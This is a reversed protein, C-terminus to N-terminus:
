LVSSDRRTGNEHILKIGPCFLPTLPLVPPVATNNLGGAVQSCGGSGHAGWEGITPGADHEQYCLLFLRERHGHLMNGPNKEEPSTGRGQQSRTRGLPTLASTTAAPIQPLSSPPLQKRLEKTRGPYLLHHHHGPFFRFLQGEEMHWPLLDSPKAAKRRLMHYNYHVLCPECM